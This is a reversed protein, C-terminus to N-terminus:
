EICGRDRSVNGSTKWASSLGIRDRVSSSKGRMSMSTVSAPSLYTRFASNGPTSFLVDRDFYVAGRDHNEGVLLLTALDPHLCPEACPVNSPCIWRETVSALGISEAAALGYALVAHQHQGQRFAPLLPRSSCISYTMCLSSAVLAAPAPTAPRRGPVLLADHTVFCQPVPDPLGQRELGTDVIQVDVHRDLVAHDHEVAIDFGIRLLQGGLMGHLADPRARCRGPFGPASPQPWAAPRRGPRARASFMM